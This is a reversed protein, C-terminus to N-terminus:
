SPIVEALGCSRPAESAAPGDLCFRWVVQMMGLVYSMGARWMRGAQCRKVFLLGAADGVLWPQAASSPTECIGGRREVLGKRCEEMLRASSSAAAGSPGFVVPSQLELMAGRGFRCRMLGADSREQRFERRHQRRLGLAVDSHRREDGRRQGETIAPENRHWAACTM